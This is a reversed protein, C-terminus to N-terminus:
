CLISHYSVRMHPYLSVNICPYMSVLICPYLSLHICPYMSVPICPYMYVPICPYLSVHICPYLSVTICHYLSVHICPYLSVTICHYMYVHICPYLSVPICLLFYLITIIRCAIVSSSQLRKCTIDSSSQTAHWLYIFFKRCALTAYLIFPPGPYINFHLVPYASLSSDLSDIVWLFSLSILMSQCDYSPYLYMCHRKKDLRELDISGWIKM